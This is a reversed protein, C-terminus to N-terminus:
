RKDEDEDWAEHHTPLIFCSSNGLISGLHNSRNGTGTYGLNSNDNAAGITRSVIAHTASGVPIFFNETPILPKNSYFRLGPLLKLLKIWRSSNRFVNAAERRFELTCFTCLAIAKWKICWIAKSKKRTPPLSRKYCYFLNELHFGKLASFYKLIFFIWKLWFQTVNIVRPHTM